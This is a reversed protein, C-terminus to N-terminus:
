KAVPEEEDKEAFREICHFLHYPRLILYLGIVFQIGFHIITYENQISQTRYYGLWVIIINCLSVIAGILQWVGLLRIGVVFIDKRM